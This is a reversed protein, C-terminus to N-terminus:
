LTTGKKLIGGLKGLADSLDKGREQRGSPAIKQYFEKLQQSERLKKMAAFHDNLIEQAEAANVEKREVVAMLGKVYDDAEQADLQEIHEQLEKLHTLLSEKDRMWEPVSPTPSSETRPQSPIEKKQRFREFIGM